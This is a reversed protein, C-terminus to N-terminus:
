VHFQDQCSYCWDFYFNLTAVKAKNAWYKIHGYYGKNILQADIEENAGEEEIQEVSQTNIMQLMVLVQKFTLLDFQSLFLLLFIIEFKASFNQSVYQTILADVEENGGLEEFIEKSKMQQIKSQYSQILVGLIPDFIGKINIIAQNIVGSDEEESGGAAAVIEVMAKIPGFQLQVSAGFNEQIQNLSEISCKRVESSAHWDANSYFVRGYLSLKILSQVVGLSIIAITSNFYDNQHIGNYHNNIIKTLLQLSSVIIAPPATQSELEVYKVISSDVDDKILQLSSSEQKVAFNNIGAAIHALINHEDKLFYRFNENAKAVCFCSTVSTVYLQHLSVSTHIKIRYPCSIESTCNM